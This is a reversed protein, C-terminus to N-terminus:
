WICVTGTSHMGIAQAAGLTLDLSVGSVFPGRDNVVVMVSKGTRPNTVTLRTGFPLTRHAAAMARPDFPQGSATRRGQSYFASTIRQGGSCATGNSRAPEQAPRGAIPEYAQPGAVPEQARSKAIAQRAQPATVLEQAPWSAIPAYAQWGAVPERGQSGPIPEQTQAEAALQRPSGEVPERAQTEAVPQRANPGAIPEQAPWNGVPVRAQWGATPGQAQSRAFPEQAQSEAVAERAQPGAVPDQRKPTVVAKVHHARQPPAPKTTPTFVSLLRKWLPVDSAQSSAMAVDPCQVVALSLIVLWRAM